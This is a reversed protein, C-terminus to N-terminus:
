LKNFKIHKREGGSCKRPKNDTQENMYKDPSFPDNASPTRAKTDILVHLSASIHYSPM